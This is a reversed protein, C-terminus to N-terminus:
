SIKVQSMFFLSMVHSSLVNGCECLWGCCSLTESKIYYQTQKHWRRMLLTPKWWCRSWTPVYHADKAAIEKATILIQFLSAKFSIENLCKFLLQICLQSIIILFVPQFLTNKYQVHNINLTLRFEYFTCMSVSKNWTFFNSRISFQYFHSWDFEIRWNDIEFKMWIMWNRLWVLNQICKLWLQAFKCDCINPAVTESCVCLSYIFYDLLYFCCMIETHQYFFM